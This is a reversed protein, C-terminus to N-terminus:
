HKRLSPLVNRFDRLRYKRQVRSEFLWDSEDTSDDSPLRSMSEGLNDDRAPKFYFPARSTVQVKESLM